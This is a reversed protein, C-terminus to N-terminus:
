KSPSAMEKHIEDMNKLSTQEEKACSGLAFVMLMMATYKIYNKM